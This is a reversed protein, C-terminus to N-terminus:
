ETLIRFTLDKDQRMDNIYFEGYPYQDTQSTYITITSGEKADSTIELLYQENRSSLITPVTIQYGSNDKINNLKETVKTLVENTSNKLVFTIEGVNERSYTALSVEIGKFNNKFVTFSQSIKQGKTIEGAISSSDTQEMPLVTYRGQQSLVDLSQNLYEKKVYIMKLSDINSDIKIM